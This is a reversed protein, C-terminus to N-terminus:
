LSSSRRHLSERHYSGSRSQFTATYYLEREESLSKSISSVLRYAVVLIMALNRSETFVCNVCFWTGLGILTAIITVILPMVCLIPEAKEDESFIPTAVHSQKWAGTHTRWVSYVTNYPYNIGTGAWRCDGLRSPRLPRVTSNENSTTNTKNYFIVYDMEDMRQNYTDRTIHLHYIQNQHKVQKLMIIENIRYVLFRRNSWKERRAIRVMCQGWDQKRRWHGWHSRLKCRLYAIIDHLNSTKFKGWCDLDFKITIYRIWDLTKVIKNM